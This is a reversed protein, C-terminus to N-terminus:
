VFLNVLMSIYQNKQTALFSLFRMYSMGFLLQLAFLVSFKAGYAVLTLGIMIKEIDSIQTSDSVFFVRKIIETPKLNIFPLPDEAKTTICGDFYVCSCFVLFVLVTMVGLVVINNSFLVIVGSVSVMALHVLIFIWGPINM